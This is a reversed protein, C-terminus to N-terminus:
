NEDMYKCETLVRRMWLQTQFPLVDQEKEEVIFTVIKLNKETNNSAICLFIKITVLFADLFYLYLLFFYRVSKQLSRKKGCYLFIIGFVWASYISM